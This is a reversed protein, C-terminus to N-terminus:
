APFLELPTADDATRFVVSTQVAASDDVHHHLEFADQDFRAAMLFSVARISGVSISPLAETLTLREVTGSVEEFSEIEHYTPAFSGDKPTIVIAMRFAQATKFYDTFGISKIDLTTGSITEGVCYIDTTGTPLWFRVARGRTMAIFKRFALVQARGRLTLGARLTLRGKQESDFVDIPGYEYQMSYASPREYGISVNLARNIKFNFLYPDTNWAPDFWQPEADDIQFRITSTAVADTINGMTPSELIRAVRLPTIRSGDGWTGAPASAFEITDTGLNVASVQLIEYAGPDKGFVLALSLSRFERLALTGAPFVLTLGLTETLHYQEHWMPMLFQNKGISSLFVDLRSRLTKQRLFTAEISRRPIVRLSRRQESDTESSLVETSYTVRENLGQKWNPLFSFVPLRLRRDGADPVDADLVPVTDFVWSSAESAYVLKDQRWLSFAVWCEAPALSLNSLLIDIRQRGRPLHVLAVQSGSDRKTYFFVRPNNQTISTAWSSAQVAVVRLLYEGGELDAWTTLYFNTRAPAEDIPSHVALAKEGYIALTDYPPPVDFEIVPTAAM